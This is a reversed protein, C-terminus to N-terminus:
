QITIDAESIDRYEDRGTVTFSIKRAGDKKAKFTQAKPMAERLARVEAILTDLKGGDESKEAAALADIKVALADIKKLVYTHEAEADALLSELM